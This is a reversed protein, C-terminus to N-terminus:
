CTIAILHYSHLNYKHTFYPHEKIESNVTPIYLLADMACISWLSVFTVKVHIENLFLENERNPPDLVLKNLGSYVFCLVLVIVLSGLGFPKGKRTFM